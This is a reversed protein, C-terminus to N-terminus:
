GKFERYEDSEYIAQIKPYGLHEEPAVLSAAVRIPEPLTEMVFRVAEAVTEFSKKESGAAGTSPAAGPFHVDAPEDLDM